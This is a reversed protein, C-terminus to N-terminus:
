ALGLEAFAAVLGEELPGAATRDAVALVQPDAGEIAVGVGAQALMEVDNLGDGFAVADSWDLGLHELVAAMGVAKHVDALSIEGASEGMASISSPLVRLAAGVDQQVQPWPARSGFYTIKACSAGSLDDSTTLNRLIDFPAPESDARETPLFGGLLEDLRRDVGPRGYLADPAELLYAADHRDLVAVARAALDAPIRVDRLVTGGVVAYGGASAVIGDFGAAVVPPPLMSMPRGTCLLVRHGAARAARVAAVHGPPVIGHHAYTGDVDLFVIRASM